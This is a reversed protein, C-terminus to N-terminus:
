FVSQFIMGKWGHWMVGVLAKYPKLSKKWELQIEVPKDTRLSSAAQNLKMKVVARIQTFAGRIENTNNGRCIEM